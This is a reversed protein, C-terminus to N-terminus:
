ITVKMQLASASYDPVKLMYCVLLTSSFDIEEEVKSYKANVVESRLKSKRATRSFLHSKDM